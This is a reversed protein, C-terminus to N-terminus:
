TIYSKFESVQGTKQIDIEEFSARIKYFGDRFRKKLWRDIPNRKSISAKKGVAIDGYKNALREELITIYFYINIVNAKPKKLKKSFFYLLFDIWRFVFHEFIRHVQFIQKLCM